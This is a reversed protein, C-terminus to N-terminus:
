TSVADYALKAKNRVKARYLATNGLTADANFVMETVVALRDENPNLSTLDTCLRNPLMPFIRASTYVSTTNIRAHDDIPTGKKVLTDVDANAVFIKVKGDGLAESVTLQDLDLSDDNDISCWLLKTLDKIDADVELVADSIKALQHTVNESFEPQLGRETMASIAIRVLDSRQHRHTTNM